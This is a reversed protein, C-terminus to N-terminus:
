GDYEESAYIDREWKSDLIKAIPEYVEAKVTQYSIPVNVRSTQQSLALQQPILEGKPM